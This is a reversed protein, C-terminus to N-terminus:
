NEYRDLENKAIDGKPWLMMRIFWPKKDYDDVFSRTNYLIQKAQIKEILENGDENSVKITEEGLTINLSGDKDDVWAKLSNVQGDITFKIM